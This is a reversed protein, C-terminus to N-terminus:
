NPLRRVCCLRTRLLGIVTPGKLVERSKRPSIHQGLKLLEFSPWFGFLLPPWALSFSATV